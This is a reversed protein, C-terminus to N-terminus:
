LKTRFENGDRKCLIQIVNRGTYISGPVGGGPLVWHGAMYFNSLGPLTRPILETLTKRTMMWGMPSGKDNLTYRWSTYPTAVDTVEIQSTIGPYFNELRKIIVNAIQHKISNYEDPNLRLNYWYEWDSELMVQIVTKGKPAFADGYNLIRLPLYSVTRGAYELPEKLTFIIFPTEKEFVRNVGFSFTLIPDFPKWTSYRKMIKDDIYKGELLDFITSRGDAASVVVDARHESGDELVVGVAADNEVIIKQVTSQFQIQGGLSRYREVISHVFEQCGKKFLGLHGGAISALIMIVFWFAVDPSFAYKFVTKLIPTKLHEAYGAASKSYKGTFYKMFSRMNWMDKLTDFRGRLEPSSVSMGLDTLLPSDKMWDIEKILKRIEDEDDPAIAILDRKLKELDATFEVITDGDEDVFRLYQNMDEIEYSGVAGIEKYVDYIQTGPKHCILFHIGGDILYDGRRWEAAVGGPKTHHEFIKSEYGNLQAYCGTSLGALGAGIVIM